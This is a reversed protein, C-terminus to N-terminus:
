VTMNYSKKINDLYQMENILDTVKMWEAIWADQCQTFDAVTQPHVVALHDWDTQLVPALLQRFKTYLEPGNTLNLREVSAVDDFEILVKCIMEHDEKTIKLMKEKRKERTQNAGVGINFTHALITEEYEEDKIKPKLPIPPAQLTLGLASAMM